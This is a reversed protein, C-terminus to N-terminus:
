SPTGERLKTIAMDILGSLRVKGSGGVPLADFFLVHQPAKYYALTNRVRTRVEDPPITESPVAVVCACVVEGYHADPVGIVKVDRVRTDARICDEIEGPFINEGGRIIIEKRRGAFRVNGDRDLRGMDGTHLFGDDDIAERTQEPLNYYGQMVCYGRVCIEGVEGTACEGGSNPHLIRGEIHRMFHGVTELKVPPPDDPSAVTIGATAETLGLSPLLEYGLKERFALMQAPSPLAGGVLGIRLSSLDYDSLDSRATLASLLTPVAHFVTCRASQVGELISQTRRNEPFYVCAGVSMAGLINASLSFCHFMPIAVLFKDRETASLDSAQQIASNVRSFHSTLVGKSAGVTGSTFLMTATDTPKVRAMANHLTGDTVYQGAAYLAHLSPADPLGAEGIYYCGEIRPLPPLTRVIEPFRADKYGDGYLLLDVDSSLLLECMERKRLSTNPLVAVAGILVTAYFCALTNPRDTSWIAIHSGKHMGIALLGKAIAKARALLAAYSMVCGGYEMAANDGYEQACETLLAGLTAHRLGKM